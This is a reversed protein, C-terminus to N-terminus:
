QLFIKEEFDLYLIWKRTWVPSRGKLHLQFSQEYLKEIRKFAEKVISKLPFFDQQTRSSTIEFIKSEAQDLLADISVGPEYGSGAITTAAHILKRSISHNRVIQSYHSVNAATPVRETLSAVYAAGGVNELFGLHRFAFLFFM